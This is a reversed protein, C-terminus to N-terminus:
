LTQEVDISFRWRCPVVVVGGFGGAILISGDSQTPRIRMSFGKEPDLSETDRLVDRVDSKMGDEFRRAKRMAAVAM